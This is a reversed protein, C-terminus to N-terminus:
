GLGLAGANGFFDGGSMALSGSEGALPSLNGEAYTQYNSLASVRAFEPSSTM